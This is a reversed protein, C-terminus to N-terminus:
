PNKPSFGPAAGKSNREILAAGPHNPTRISWCPLLVPASMNLWVFLMLGVALLSDPALSPLPSRPQSRTEEM